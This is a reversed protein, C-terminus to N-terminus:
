LNFVCSGVVLLSVRIGWSITLGCVTDDGVLSRVSESELVVVDPDMNKAARGTNGM